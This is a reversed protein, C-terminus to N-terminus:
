QDELRCWWRGSSRELSLRRDFCASLAAATLTEAIPGQAVLRGGSVLAAHTFGPPIEEVHHTVLATPAATPDAALQGLSEVLDERGGIDLGANPEDLLVLAPDTMLTRALLVRQREGSSHLGFARDALHGCGFRDLLFGARTRDSEDYTHWWPELAAYKATMVVETGTLTPRLQDFMTAASYGIRRRLTRVDTHGLEQGLVQVSGTTPHLQLAAVRLLTSKGSGNPGLVAWRQGPEITWSVEQLIDKPGRRVSVAQLDLAPTV